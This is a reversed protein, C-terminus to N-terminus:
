DSVPTAVFVPPPRVPLPPPHPHSDWQLPARHTGRRPYTRSLSRLSSPTLQIKGRWQAADTARSCVPFLDCGTYPRLCCFFLLRAARAFLSRLAFSCTPRVRAGGPWRIKKWSPCTRSSENGGDDYSNFAGNGNAHLCQPHLGSSARARGFLRHPDSDKFTPFWDLHSTDSGESLKFLSEM